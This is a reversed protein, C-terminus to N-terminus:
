PVPIGYADVFFSFPAPEQLGIEFVVEFSNGPNIIGPVSVREGVGGPGDDANLVVNDGTLTVVEFFVNSLPDSSINTFTAEITFIGAPAGPIPTPDFATALAALTVLDNVVPIFEVAGIDCAVTGDRTGDVPRPFGRQDTVPPPPPPFFFIDGQPCTSDGADIADSSAGLTHTETPGGNNQLPGLAATGMSIDGTATLLCSGDSDLNHGNFISSIGGSCDDGALQNAVITHDLRVAGDDPSRSSIGGGDGGAATTNGSITSNTLTVFGGVNAIGGGDGGVLFPPFGGIIFEGGAGTTNGSVTSNILSASGFFNFIGGGHGGFQRFRTDAGTTNGSVTSNILTLFGRNNLIGGGDGGGGGGADGFGGAGTTNGSVTSNILTLTGFFNLIGGGDGGGDGAGTTNGSVTSNTLTMTGFSNVIGGGDGGDGIVGNDSVVSAATTNGSVTSNTLTLTGGNSIGSGDSNGSVTTHHLTLTGSNRNRIGGAGGTVTVHAIEVVIPQGAPAIDFVRDDSPDAPEFLGKGGDIITADVGAGTITLDDTIDLDGTAAEDEPEFPLNRRTLLFTGPVVSSAFSITDAGSGAACADVATDLNAARIAERLACDGDTNLEDDTTNVTIIVAAVPLPVALAVIILAVLLLRSVVGDLGEGIGAESGELVAQQRMDHM